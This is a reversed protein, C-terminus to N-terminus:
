EEGWDYPVACEKCESPTGFQPKGCEPCEFFNEEEYEEVPIPEDEGRPIVFKQNAKEWFSKKCFYRRGCCLCFRSYANGSVYPLRMKLDMVPVLEPDACTCGKKGM